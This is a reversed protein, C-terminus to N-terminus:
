DWLTDQSGVKAEGQRIMELKVIAAVWPHSHNVVLGTCRTALHADGSDMLRSKVQMLAALM